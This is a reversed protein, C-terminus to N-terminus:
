NDHARLEYVINTIILHWSQHDISEDIHYKKNKRIILMVYFNCLQLLQDWKKVLSSKEKTFQSSNIKTSYSMSYHVNKMLVDLTNLTKLSVLINYTLTFFYENQIESVEEFKNKMYLSNFKYYKDESCFLLYYNIQSVWGYICNIFISFGMLIAIESYIKRRLTKM